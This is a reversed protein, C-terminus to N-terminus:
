GEVRSKTSHWSAPNGFQGLDGVYSNIPPPPASLQALASEAALCAIVGPMRAALPTKQPPKV